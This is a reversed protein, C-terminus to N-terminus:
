PRRRALLTEVAQRVGAAAGVLAAAPERLDAAVRELRDLRGRTEAALGSAEALLAEARLALGPLREHTESLVRDLSRAARRIELLAPVLAGAVALAAVGVGIAVLDLITM